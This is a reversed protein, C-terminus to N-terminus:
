TRSVAAVVRDPRLLVAGARGRALWGRLVPDDVVVARAGLAGARRGLAADIPGADTPGADTPGAALLAWGPGLLEDLLVRSRLDGGRGGSGRVAPQPCVTGPLDGRRVRRDVWASPPYRTRIGALARAEAGPLRLLGAVVPRRLAAFLGNGGTMARGVRVAARTVAVVHPAREAEYTDLLDEGARGDLVAALKWALNHADGLGTGLGQGIFPPMLHAADGLLLVRGRRWRRALQARFVYEARRVVTYSGPSAWPALLAPLDLGDATEGDHMRLEVRYRDGTLHLATAARRPDCVQDVGGWGAIGAPSRLDVVLWRQAFGLVRTGSGIAAAVTSGAGDCGLVAAAPVREGGALVVHPGDGDDSVGTVEVGGRVPVGARRVAARLVAELDPQDFLNAEPHGHVGPATDRRFVAFPRHAADLLRLGTAPRSIAAFEEHVGLHQLVRVAAGDLHVARPRAYPETHRDLVTVPVGLRGLLGAVALGTPGAGVVVVGPM